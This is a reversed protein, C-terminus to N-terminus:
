FNAKLGISFSTYRPEGGVRLERLKKNQAFEYVDNATVFIQSSRMQILKAIKEPMTYTLQITNISFYDNNYKWYTSTRYNNSSSGTTLRPFTATAATEPTWAGLVVESYKKNGDVYFYNGSKFNDSGSRGEGLVFLTLDKYSVRLQLSGSLPAQWRRLYVEDNDDVVGDNNQDKYKIDGPKVTGFTQFPSNKIDDQDAFLGIAELGFSADVPHGKRYQYANNYIEDVKTRESTVYLMNAGAFFTWDGVSKNFNLGAEIGKYVDTGYNMYPVFETMFSPYLTNPRTILGDYTDYFVNVEAGITKNFFLGELGLNLENRTAFGLNPNASWSAGIGGRSRQGENWAYSGSGGWRNDYYFFGIIPFDSKMMGGSIRLKLLDVVKSSSLFDENHMMWAFGLSPSFDGRNGPALKTSNVYASSFDIMYKKDFSYALQLGIHAQKIGQFEEYSNDANNQEKYQSGFGILSGTFHHKDSFTRDYSLLGYFGLRRNFNTGGIVQTGSRTDTGQQKLSIIKDEVLDWTPEYVSYTNAVTQSYITFYDFSINTHFSLGKTVKNLDFDVRNNFSFKRYINEFVGGSYSDAIPNTMFVSNGGLLYMGDVDNKRGKLLPNEPDILSFPLLPTYEFPRMSAASGWFSGRQSRNIGFVSTADVSTKIWDNIKLDINGRINFTNNRANVAEGFNVLSGNSYWGFNSYYKAMNNGGSFEGTLDFYSKFAKLYDDSYYDVDPYRYKNGSRYKEILEDTFAPTLGDNARAKNFQTMYDASNLYKPFSKPTQIGYNFSFDSLNKYAEGRKTTILIVGNVAASGYLVAANVDKLVSINEIESLRLGTIDRPLGDVIYLANGSNLGSGTIDAININIGLGRINNSGLLGLTRGYLVDGAWIGYDYKSVEDAKISTVTGVVDGKFAKNFAIDIKANKEYQFKVAALTVNEKNNVEDITLEINEYGDKEFVLRDGPEVELTFKGTADTVTYGRNSFVEANALPKGDQDLVVSEIAILKAKQAATHKTTFLVAMCLLALIIYKKNKM